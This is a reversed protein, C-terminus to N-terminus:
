IGTFADFGGHYLFVPRLKQYIKEVTVAKFSHYEGFVAGLCEVECEKAYEFLAVVSDNSAHFMVGNEMYLLLVRLGKM